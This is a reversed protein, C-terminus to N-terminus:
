QVSEVAADGSADRPPAIRTGALVVLRNGRWEVTNSVLGHIWCVTMLLDKLVLAAVTSLDTPMARSQRALTMDCAIKLTALTVAIPLCAPALLSAAGALSLPNLLCAGLYFPLPVSNRHMVSWRRYRAYVQAIGMHRVYGTVFGSALAVRKGLRARVARGMFYDEALINEFAAFGGLRELDARRMAMSKGVVIDQRALTKAGVVGAAITTTMHLNDMAAGLSREGLGRVPHTVLGVDSDCLHAAIEILYDREVRVNSDSVVYLDYRAHKALTVLQNIKPNFGNSGRQVVVRVREPNERAV